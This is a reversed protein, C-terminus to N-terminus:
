DESEPNDDLDTNNVRRRFSAFKAIEDEKEKYEIVDIDLAKIVTNLVCCFNLFSTIKYEFHIYIIGDVNCGTYKEIFDTYSHQTETNVLCTKGNEDYLCTFKFEDSKKVPEQSINFTGKIQFGIHEEGDEEGDRYYTRVNVNNTILNSAIFKNLLLQKRKDTLFSPEIFAKNSVNRTGKKTISNANYFNKFHDFMTDIKVYEGNENKYHPAFAKRGIVESDEIYFISSKMYKFQEDDFEDAPYQLEEYKESIDSILGNYLTKDDCDKYKDNGLNIDYIYCLFLINFVETLDFSLKKMIEDENALTDDHVSVNIYMKKTIRSKKSDDQGNDYPPMIKFKKNGTENTYVISFFEYFRGGTKYFIRPSTAQFGSTNSFDDSKFPVKIRKKGNDFNLGYYPSEVVINNNGNIYDILKDSLKIESIRVLGSFNVKSFEM